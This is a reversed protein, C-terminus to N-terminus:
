NIKYQFYNIKEFRHSFIGYELFLPVKKLLLHCHSVSMELLPKEQRQENTDMKM